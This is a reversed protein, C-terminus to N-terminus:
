IYIDPHAHLGNTLNPYNERMFASKAEDFPAEEANNSTANTGCLAELKERADYDSSLRVSCCAYWSKLLCGELERALCPLEVETSQFIAILKELGTNSDKDFIESEFQYWEGLVERFEFWDPSASGGGRMRRMHGGGVRPNLKQATDLMKAADIMGHSVKRQIIDWASQGLIEKVINDYKGM